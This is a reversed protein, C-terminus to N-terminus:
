KGAADFISKMSEYEREHDAIYTEVMARLVESPTTGGIAALAFFKRKQDTELKITFPDILKESSM